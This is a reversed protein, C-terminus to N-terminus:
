LNKFAKIVRRVGKNLILELIAVVFTGIRLRGEFSVDAELVQNEFDPQFLFDDEYVVYLISAIGLVYGTTSPDEFGFHVKGKLKTPKLHRLVRMLVKKAKQFVPRNEPDKLIALIADKKESINELKSIVEQVRAQTKEKKDSFRKVWSELREKLQDLPSKEEKKKQEKAPGKQGKAEQEGEKSPAKETEQEQKSAQRMEKEVSEQTVTEEEQAATPEQEEKVKQIEKEKAESVTESKKSVKSKEKQPKQTKKKKQGTKEKQDSDYIKKGFIRATIHLGKGKELGYDIKVHILHLLWTIDTQLELQDKYKVNGRYRIPVLLIVCICLLLLAIVILVIIGIVKLIALILHVM